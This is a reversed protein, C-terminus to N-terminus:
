YENDMQSKMKQKVTFEGTSRLHNRAAEMYGIGDLGTEKIHRSLWFAAEVNSEGWEDVLREVNDDAM